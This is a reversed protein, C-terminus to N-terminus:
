ASLLATCSKEAPKALTRVQTGNSIGNPKKEEPTSAAAWDFPHTQLPPLLETGALQVSGILQPRGPTYPVNFVGAFAFM